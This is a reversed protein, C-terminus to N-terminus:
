QWRRSRRRINDAVKVAGWTGWYPAYTGVECQDDTLSSATDSHLGYDVGPLCGFRVLSFLASKARKALTFGGVERPTGAPADKLLEGIERETLIKFAQDRATAM